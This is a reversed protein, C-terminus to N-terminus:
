WNRNSDLCFVTDSINCVRAYTCGYHMCSRIYCLVIYTCPVLTCWPFCHTICCEGWFLHQIHVYTHIYMCMYMCTCIYMCIYIMMYMIKYMRVYTCVICWLNSAAETKPVQMIQVLCVYLNEIIWSHMSIKRVFLILIKGFFAHQVSM